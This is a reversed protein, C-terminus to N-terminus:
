VGGGGSSSNNDSVLVRILNMDGINRIGGGDGAANNTSIISDRVTLTGSTSIGGGNNASFNGSISSNQITGTVNSSVTLGSNGGGTIVLGDITVTPSAGYINIVKVNDTNNANLVANTITNGFADTTTLDDGNVDGSLTIDPRGDNDIDGDITVSTSTLLTSSLNSVGGSLAADFEITDADSVLALAERLSLGAGDATEAALDGADFAEDDLTTVTFTAM